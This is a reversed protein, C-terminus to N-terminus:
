AAVGAIKLASEVAAAVEARAAAEIVPAEEPTLRRRARSVPDRADGPLAKAAAVKTVRAGIDLLASVRERMAAGGSARLAGGLEPALNRAEGAPRRVVRLLPDGLFHGDPRYVRALLFGPGRGSRARRLLRGSERSVAEVDAGDVAAAALGFAKARAVLHGGTVSRSPTTIAWRNDKCVFLVPLKWAAALNLSELLQGQNAAGEGFFAVAAKGHRLRTAAMAFGCAIPGAAGVIGDSAALHARSFLHMHGGRGGCLGEPSGLMELLLSELDVGRAVLPPTSRHDIAMADGDGLHSVVGVAVGEEGIGLHMEGAILGEHWLKAQAEEFARV